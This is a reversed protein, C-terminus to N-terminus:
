LLSMSLNGQDGLGSLHLLQLTSPPTGSIDQTGPGLDQSASEM